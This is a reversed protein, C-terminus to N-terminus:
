KENGHKYHGTLKALKLQLTQEDASDILRLFKAAPKGSVIKIQKNDRYIILKNNKTIKYTFPRSVLQERQDIPPANEGSIKAFVTAKIETWEDKLISYYVTDRRYGDTMLFHSRLIGEHTAGIAEIARKSQENRSDTKLEVREFALVEFAYQLMLFKNHRNLGTRQHDKTLWTWGIELRQNANSINGYSTSGAYKGTTKDYIVFPYRVQEDRQAMAIEFYAKLADKTGFLSPSYRLLDPYKEAIPLLTDFHQWDLPELKTRENELIIHDQCNFKMNQYNDTTPRYYYHNLHIFLNQM